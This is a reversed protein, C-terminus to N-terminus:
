KSFYVTPPLLEQTEGRYVSTVVDVVDAGRIRGKIAFEDFDAQEIWSYELEGQNYTANDNRTAMFIFRVVSNGEHTQPKHTIAILPGITVELGTEEKCERAACQQLTEGIELKGGPLGFKGSTVKKIEKVFLVKDNEKLIVSCSIIIM